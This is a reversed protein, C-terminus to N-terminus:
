VSDSKVECLADLPILLVVRAGDGYSLGMELKGGLDRALSRLDFLGMSGPKHKGSMEPVFGQGDDEVLLILNHDVVNVKVAAWHAGGHKVANTLFERAARFLFAAVEKSLNPVRVCDVDVILSYRTRFDEGLNDLAEDLGRTFLAPPVLETINSRLQTAVERLLALPKELGALSGSPEAMGDIMMTALALLQVPGDHLERALNSREQEHALIMESSLTRIRRGREEAEDEAQRRKTIDQVYLKYGVRRGLPDSIVRVSLTTWFLSGDRRRCQCMHNHAEGATFAKCNLRVSDEACAYLQPGMELVELVMDEPSYYGFMEAMRPNAKVLRGEMNGLAIGLPATDFLNKYRVLIHNTETIDQFISIAAARGKFEIPMSYSRVCKTKGGPLQFSYEATSSKQTVIPGKWRPVLVALSNLHVLDCLCKGVLAEPTKYGIFKAFTPNCKIVVEGDHVMICSLSNDVVIQNFQEAKALDLEYRRDETHDQFLSLIVPQDHFTTRTGCVRVWRVQGNALVAQYEGSLPSRDEMAWTSRSIHSVNQIDMMDSVHKGELSCRGAGSFSEAAPNAFLISGAAHIVLPVPIFDMMDRNLRLAKVLAEFGQHRKAENRVLVELVPTEAEEWAVLRVSAICLLVGGDHHRLVTPAWQVEGEGVLPTKCLSEWDASEHWLADVGDACFDLLDDSSAFGLMDVMSENARLVDGDLSVIVCAISLINLPSEAFSTGKQCHPLILSFPDENYPDHESM